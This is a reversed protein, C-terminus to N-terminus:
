SAPTTRLGRVWQVVWQMWGACSAYEVFFGFVLYSVLASLWTIVGADPILLLIVVGLVLAGVDLAIRYQRVFQTVAGAPSPAGAVLDHGRQALWGRATRATHDPGLLWLIGGVVAAILALVLTQDVLNVSASDLIATVVGETAPESILGLIVSRAIRIGLIVVVAAVAIAIMTRFAAARRERATILGLILLLGFLVPLLWSMLRIASIAERTTTVVSGEVVTYVPYGETRPPPLYQALGGLREELAARAEKILPETNFVVADGQFRFVSSRDRLLKVVEQSASQTANVVLRNGARSDLVSNVVTGVQSRISATLVTALLQKRSEAIPLADTAQEALDFVREEPLLDDSIYATLANRIEVQGQVKLAAAVYGNPNYATVRM